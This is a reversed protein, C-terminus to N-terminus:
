IGEPLFYGAKTYYDPSTLAAGLQSAIDTGSINAQLWLGTAGLMALRCHKIEQVQKEFYEEETYSLGFPNWGTQGLKIDGPIRSSGEEKIIQVRKFEIFIAALLIQTFAPGPANQLAEVPNVYSYADVGSWENGPFTGFVAPWIFGVAALQAIRGHTIEAERLWQLDTMTDGSDSAFIKAWGATSFGVPDFGADGPLSGDLTDPATAFPLAESPNDFGVNLATSAKTTASPAFAAATSLLTTAIALKM